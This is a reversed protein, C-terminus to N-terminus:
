NVKVQFQVTGKEGPALSSINWTLTRTADDYSGGVASGISYTVGSVLVDTIIVNQATSQGTNEYSITYTITDGPQARATDALKSIVIQPPVLSPIPTPSITKSYTLGGQEMVKKIEAEAFVKELEALISPELQTLTYPWVPLGIDKGYDYNPILVAQDKGPSGAALVDIPLTAYLPQGILAKTDTIWPTYINYLDNSVTIQTTVTNVYFPQPETITYTSADFINNYFHTEYAQTLYIPRNYGTFINHMIKVDRVITQRTTDSTQSIQFGRGPVTYTDFWNGIVEIHEVPALPSSPDLGDETRGHLWLSVNKTPDGQGAHGHIINGYIKINDSSNQVTIGSFRALQAYIVNHQIISWPNETGRQWHSKIDIGDEWNHSVILNREVLNEAGVGATFVVGDVNGGLLNERIVARTSGNGYSIDGSASDDGVHVFINREITLGSVGGAGVQIGRTAIDHFYSDRVTIERSGGAIMLGEALTSYEPDKPDLHNRSGSGVYTYSPDDPDLPNGIPSPNTFQMNYIMVYEAGELRMAYGKKQGDIISELYGAGCLVIPESSTGKLTIYYKSGITSVYTGASFMGVDGAKLTNVTQEWGLSTPISVIRGNGVPSPCSSTGALVNGKKVEKTDTFPQYKTKYVFIYTTLFLLAAITSLFIFIFFKYSPKM